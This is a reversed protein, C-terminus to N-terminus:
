PRHDTYRHSFRPAAPMVGTQWQVGMPITAGDRLPVREWSVIQRPDGPGYISRDGALAYGTALLSRANEQTLGYMLCFEGASRGGPPPLVAQINYAYGDTYSRLELATLAVQNVGEAAPTATPNVAAPPSAPLAPRGAATAGLHYGQQFGQRLAQAEEPNDALTAVLTEQAVGAIAQNRLAQPTSAAPSLGAGMNMTQSFGGVAGLLAQNEAQAKARAQMPTLVRGARAAEVYYGETRAIIERMPNEAPRPSRTFYAGSILLGNVALGLPTSYINTAGKADAFLGHFGAGAITEAAKANVAITDPSIQRWTMARYHVWHPHDGGREWVSGHLITGTGDPNFVLLAPGGVDMGMGPQVSEWQGVIQDASIPIRAQHSVKPIHGCGSALVSLGLALLFRPLNQKM